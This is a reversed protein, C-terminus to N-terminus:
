ARLLGKGAITHPLGSFGTQLSNTILGVFLFAVIRLQLLTTGAIAAGLPFRPFASRVILAAIHAEDNSVTLDRLDEVHIEIKVSSSFGAV